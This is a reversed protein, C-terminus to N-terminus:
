SDRMGKCRGSRGKWVSGQQEKFRVVSKTWSGEKPGLSSFNIKGMPPAGSLLISKILLLHGTSGQFIFEKQSGNRMKFHQPHNSLPPM